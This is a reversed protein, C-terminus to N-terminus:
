GFYKGPSSPDCEIYFFDYPPKTGKLQIRHVLEDKAMKNCNVRLQCHPILKGYQFEDVQKKTIQIYLFTILMEIETLLVTIFSNFHAIWSILSYCNCAM